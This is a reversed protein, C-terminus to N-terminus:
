SNNSCNSISPTNSLAFHLYPRQHSPHSFIAPTPLISAHPLHQKILRALQERQLPKSIFGDMGASEAASKEDLKSSGTLAIIASKFGLLRICRTAEIGNMKPMNIDIIIMAYHPNRTVAAVAEIGDAATDCNFGLSKVMREIVKCNLNQDDVV